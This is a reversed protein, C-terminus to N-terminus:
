FGSKKYQGQNFANLKIEKEGPFIYLDVTQCYTDSSKTVWINRIVRLKFARRM